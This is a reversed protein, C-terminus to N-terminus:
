EAASTRGRRRWLHHGEAAQWAILAPVGVALERVRKVLALALGIEPSLGVLGALLMIGGEQVGLGGPVMFAAARAARSLSQLIMADAISIPHGLFYCAIWVEGTGSFWSMLQLLVNKAIDALRGYVTRVSEDLREADGVLAILGGSVRHARRALFRFLGNRQAIVFGSVCTLLVGAVILLPVTLHDAAGYTALLALGTLTFIIQTGAGLTLDVVVAAGARDGSVGRLYMMRAGIADGGVQAVPLLQSASQRIWRAWLVTPFRLRAGPPLLLGWAAADISLPILEWAIVAILGWGIALTAQVVSGTGQWVILGTALALGILGFVVMAAKM